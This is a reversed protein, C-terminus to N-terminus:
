RLGRTAKARHRAPQPTDDEVAHTLIGPIDKEKVSYVVRDKVALENGGFKPIVVTDGRKLTTCGEGVKIITGSRPPQSPTFIREPTFISGHQIVGTRDWVPRLLVCGRRPYVEATDRDLFAIVERDSYFYLIADGQIWRWSQKGRWEVTSVLVGFGVEIETQLPGVAVVHGHSPAENQAQPAMYISGIKDPDYLVEILLNKGLPTPLSM